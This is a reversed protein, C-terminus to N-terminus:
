QRGNKDKRRAMRLSVSLLTEIETPQVRPGDTRFVVQSGPPVEDAAVLRALPLIILRKFVRKLERAGYESCNAELMIRERMDDTLAIAFANEKRRDMIIDQFNDIEHQLIARLAEDTLAQYTIVADLRNMFEPTFYNKAAAMSVDKSSASGHFGMGIKRLERAGLNSSFFIMADNFKVTANTSLQLEGKDLVGLLLQWVTTAAKEIEDFLVLSLNCSTSTADRLRNPSLLPEDKYGIYSAPAGVLRLATHDEMMEACNIRLLKSDFGHIVQALAEVTRTKGTGTPGLLLLSGAPKNRPNLGSQWVEFLDAVSDAAADQGVLVKRLRRAVDHVVM